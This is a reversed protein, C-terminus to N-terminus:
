ASPDNTVSKGDAFTIKLLSGLLDGNRARHMEVGDRDPRNRERFEARGVKNRTFFSPPGGETM